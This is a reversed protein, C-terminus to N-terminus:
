NESFFPNPGGFTEYGTFGDPQRGSNGVPLAAASNQTNGTYSGGAAGGSDGNQRGNGNGGGNASNSGYEIEDVILVPASKKEHSNQDEWTDEDYRGIINVYSGADLKMNKIRETLYGFAKVGLNVFRHEREARKDYVMVGIRFRVSPSETNESFRLAAAGDFGKSIVAKTVIMKIM